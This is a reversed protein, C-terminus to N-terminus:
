SGEGGMLIDFAKLADSVARGYASSTLTSGSVLYVELTDKTMGVYYGDKGADTKQFVPEAYTPTESNSTCKTGAIKGEPTIGVMVTMGASKGTVVLRFVYGGETSKKILDISSPMEDTIEINTFGSHDPLVETLTQEAQTSNNAEIRPGTVSNIIALMAAIVLCIAGLTVSPIIKNKTM